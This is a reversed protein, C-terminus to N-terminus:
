VAGRPHPPGGGGRRLLARVRPHGGQLAPDAAAHRRRPPPACLPLSFPRLSPLTPASSWADAHTPPRAPLEAPLPRCCRQLQVACPEWGWGRGACLAGCRKRLARRSCMCLSGRRRARGAAGRRARAQEKARKIEAVPKVKERSAGRWGDAAYAEVLAQEQRRPAPAHAPPCLRRPACRTLALDWRCATCARPCEIYVIHLAPGKQPRASCLLAPQCAGSRLDAHARWCCHGRGAARVQAALAPQAPPQVHPRLQQHAAQRPGCGEQGQAARRLAACRTLSPCTLLLALPWCGMVRNHAFDASCPAQQQRCRPREGSASAGRTAARRMRAPVARTAAGAGQAAARAAGEAARGAAAAAGTPGVQLCAPLGHCPRTNLQERNLQLLTQM